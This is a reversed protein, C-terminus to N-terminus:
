PLVLHKVWPTLGPILSADENMGTLNKVWQAVFPVGKLKRKIWKIGVRVHFCYSFAM